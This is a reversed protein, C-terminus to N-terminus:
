RKKLIKMLDWVDARIEKNSLVLVATLFLTVIAYALVHLFFTSLPFNLLIPLFGPPGPLM